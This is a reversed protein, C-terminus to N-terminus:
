FPIEDEDIDIIAIDRKKMVVSEVYPKPVIKGMKLFDGKKRFHKIEEDTLKRQSLPAESVRVYERIDELEGRFYGDKDISIEAKNDNTYICAGSEIDWIKITEDRSGSVVKKGNPTIAVSYITGTHGELTQLCKNGSEIDWITITGNRSGLVVKKGNPTIAISNIWGSYVELTKLCEGSEIDWIKIPTAYHGSVVKKGNSTIVVSFSSTCRDLTELCEGSEIDWIKIPKLNSGSVVKKGNPTIAVSYIHDSHVKDRIFPKFPFSQALEGSDKKSLLKNALDLLSKSKSLALKANQNTTTLNNKM